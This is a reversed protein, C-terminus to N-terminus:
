LKPPKSEPADKSHRVTEIWEDYRKKFEVLSNIKNSSDNLDSSSSPSTSGSSDYDLNAYSLDKEFEQKLIDIREIPKISTTIEIKAGTAHNSFKISSLEDNRYRPTMKGSSEFAIGHDVFACIVRLGIGRGGFLKARAKTESKLSDSKTKIYNLRKDKDDMKKLFDKSFGGGNDSFTMSVTEEPGEKIELLFDLEVICNEPPTKSLIIQDIANKIIEVFSQEVYIGAASLEIKAKLSNRIEPNTISCLATDLMDLWWLDGDLGTLADEFYTRIPLKPLPREKATISCENIYDTLDIIMKASLTNNDGKEISIYSKTEKTDHM